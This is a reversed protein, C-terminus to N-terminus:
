NHYIYMLLCFFLTKSADQSSNKLFQGLQPGLYMVSLIFVAERFLMPSFGTFVYRPSKARFFDFSTQFNYGLKHNLLMFHDAATLFTAGTFASAM